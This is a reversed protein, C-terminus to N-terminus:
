CDYPSGLALKEGGEHANAKANEAAADVDAEVDVAGVAAGVVAGVAAAAVVVAAAELVGDPADVAFSEYDVHHVVDVAAAAAAVVVVDRELSACPPVVLGLESAAHSGSPWHPFERKQLRAGCGWRVTL